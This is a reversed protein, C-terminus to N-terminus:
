VTYIKGNYDIANESLVKAKQAGIKSVELLTVIHQEKAKALFLKLLNVPRLKEDISDEGFEVRTVTYNVPTVTVQYGDQIITWSTDSIQAIEGRTNLRFSSAIEEVMVADDYILYLHPDESKVSRTISTFIGDQWADTTDTCYDFVGNEYSSRLVKAGPKRSNQNYAM